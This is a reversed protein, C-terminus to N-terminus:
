SRSARRGAPLLYLRLLYCLLAVGTLVAMMMSSSDKGQNVFAAGTFAAGLVAILGLSSLAIHAGRRAMVARVVVIIASVLLLIGFVAHASISAPGNAIATRIGQGADAKPVTVYLNVYAGLMYQIILMVLMALNAPRLGKAGDAASAAVAPDAPTGARVNM